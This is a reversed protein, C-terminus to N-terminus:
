RNLTLVEPGNESIYITNEYHASLKQDATIITWKDELTLVKFTGVNVMPEIAFTMGAKLVPGQNAKGYNPILPDEHLDKGIGHSCLDRVVSFGKKEVYTQLANSIDGLKKGPVAQKICEFFSDETVKVLNVAEETGQEVIFTRAADVHFGKYFVGVDISVVDGPFFVKSEYPIGHVVEENKSICSSFKYGRYGLFSPKANRELIKKHILQDLFGSNSGVKVFPRIYEFVEALIKGGERMANLDSDTKITINL